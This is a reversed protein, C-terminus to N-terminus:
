SKYPTGPAKFGRALGSVPLPRNTPPDGVGNRTRLHRSSSSTGSSSRANLSVDSEDPVWGNAPWSSWCPWAFKCPCGDSSSHTREIIQMRTHRVINQSTLLLTSNPHQSKLDLRQLEHDLAAPKRHVQLCHHHSICNLPPLRPQWARRLRASEAASAWFNGVNGFSTLDGM